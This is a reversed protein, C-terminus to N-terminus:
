NKNENYRKIMEKIRIYDKETIKGEKYRKELNQTEAELKRPYVLFTAFYKLRIEELNGETMTRHVHRWPGTVIDKYQDYSVQPFSEREKEFFENLLDQNELKM